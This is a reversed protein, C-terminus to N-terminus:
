AETRSAVWSSALDLSWGSVPSGSTRPQLIVSTPYGSGAVLELPPPASSKVARILGAETYYNKSMCLMVKGNEDYATYSPSLSSTSSSPSASGSM